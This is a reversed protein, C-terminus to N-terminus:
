RVVDLDVGAVAEGDDQAIGVGVVGEVAIAPGRGILARIGVGAPVGPVKSAGCASPMQCSVEVKGWATWSWPKRVKTMGM